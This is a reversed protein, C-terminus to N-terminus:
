GYRVEGAIIRRGADKGIAALISRGDASRPVRRHFDANVFDIIHLVADDTPM